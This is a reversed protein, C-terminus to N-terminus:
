KKYNILYNNRRKVYFCEINEFKEYLYKKLLHIYDNFLPKVDEKQDFTYRNQYKSIVDPEGLLFGSFHYFKL